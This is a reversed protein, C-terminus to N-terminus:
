TFLTDVLGYPRGFINDHHIFIYHYIRLYASHSRAVRGSYVMSLFADIVYVIVLLMCPDGGVGMPHLGREGHRTHLGYTLQITEVWGIGSYVMFTFIREYCLCTGYWWCAYTHRTLLGYTLQIGEVFDRGSYVM